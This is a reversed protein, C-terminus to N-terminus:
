EPAATAVIGAAELIERLRKRGRGLKCRNTVTETGFLREYVAERWCEPLDMVADRVISVQEAVAAAEGPDTIAEAVSLGAVLPVRRRYDRCIKRSHRGADISTRRTIQSAVKGAHEADNPQSRSLWKWFTVAADQAVDEAMDAPSERFAVTRILEYYDEVRYEM